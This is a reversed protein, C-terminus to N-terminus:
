APQKQQEIYQKIIELDRHLQDYSFVRGASPHAPRTNEPKSQSTVATRTAPM